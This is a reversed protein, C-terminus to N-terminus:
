LAWTWPQPLKDGSTISGQVEEEHVHYYHQRGTSSPPFSVEWVECLLLTCVCALLCYLCHTVNASLATNLKVCLIWHGVPFGGSVWLVNICGSTPSLCLTIPDNECCWVCHACEAISVCWVKWLLIPQDTSRSGDTVYPLKTYCHLQFVYLEKAECFLGFKTIKLYKDVAMHVNRSDLGHHVVGMGAICSSKWEALLPHSQHYSVFCIMIYKRSVM